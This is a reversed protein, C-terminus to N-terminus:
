AKRSTEVFFVYVTTFPHSLHHAYGKPPMRWMPLPLRSYHSHEGIHTPLIKHGKHNTPQSGLEHLALCISSASALWQKFSSLLRACPTNPSRAKTLSPVPSPLGSTACAFYPGCSPPAMQSLALHWLPAAGRDHDHFAPSGVHCFGDELM